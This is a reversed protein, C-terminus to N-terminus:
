KSFTYNAFFITNKYQKEYLYTSPYTQLLAVDIGIVMASHDGKVDAIVLTRFSNM